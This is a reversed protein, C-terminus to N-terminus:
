GSGYFVGKVEPLKELAKDDIAKRDKVVFRLRTQCHTVSDVNNEGVLKLIAKAEEEYNKAM